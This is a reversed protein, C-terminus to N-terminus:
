IRPVVVFRIPILESVAFKSRDETDRILLSFAFQFPEDCEFALKFNLNSNEPLSVNHDFPPAYRFGSPPKQIMWPTILRDINALIQRPNRFVRTTSLSEFQDFVFFESYQRVTNTLNDEGFEWPFLLSVTFTPDAITAIEGELELTGQQGAVIQPTIPINSPIPASYTNSDPGTISAGIRSQTRRVFKVNIWNSVNLDASRNNFEDKFFFAAQQTSPPIKGGAVWPSASTVLPGSGVTAIPAVVPSLSHGIGPIRGFWNRQHVTFGTPGALDRGLLNLPKGRNVDSRNNGFQDQWYLQPKAM